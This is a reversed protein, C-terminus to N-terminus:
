KNDENGAEEINRIPSNNETRRRGAESLFVLPKPIRIFAIQTNTRNSSPITMEAQCFVGSLQMKDSKNEDRGGVRRKWKKETKYM